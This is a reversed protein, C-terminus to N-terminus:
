LICLFITGTLAAFSRRVSSLPQSQTAYDQSGGRWIRSDKDASSSSGERTHKGIEFLIAEEREEGETKMAIREKGLM